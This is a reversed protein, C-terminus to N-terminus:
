FFPYLFDNPAKATFTPIPRYEAQPTSSIDIYAISQTVVFKQKYSSSCPKEICLFYLSRPTNYKVQFGVVKRQPNGFLGTKAYLIEFSVGMVMNQCEGNSSSPKSTPKNNVIAIWGAATSGDLSGFSAVHTPLDKLLLNFIQDQWIVCDNDTMNKKVSVFCATLFDIGFKVPIRNFSADECMSSTTPKITTLVSLNVMGSFNNPILYGVILPYDILYGPNGSREFLVTSSFGVDSSVNEQLSINSASYLSSNTSVSSNPQVNTSASQFKYEFTQLFSASNKSINALTVFVDVNIIKVTINTSYTVAYTIKSLVNNCGGDVQVSPKSINSYFCNENCMIPLKLTPSILNSSQNLGVGMEMIYSPYPAVQFGYVFNIGNWNVDNLCQNKIDKVQQVCTSKNSNLFRAANTLSCFEGHLPQALFGKINSSYLIFLPDGFKFSSQYNNIIQDGSSYTTKQYKNVLANIINANSGISIDPYLNREQYNDRYICFLGGGNGRAEYQGNVFLLLTDSVCVERLQVVPMAICTSFAIKDNSTCDADCCCNIDCGKSTLDCSCSQTHVFDLAVMFCCIFSNLIM